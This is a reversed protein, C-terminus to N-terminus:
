MKFSSDKNLSYLIRNRTRKFNTFGNANSILKKLLRNKSEIYSNNIRKGNIITFSNIIEERWNLLLNHFEDLESIGSDAFLSIAKDIKYPAEAISCNSNLELYFERLEYAVKLEPFEALLLDRIGRYNIYEGLRKNYRPTNDLFTKHYFVFRFKVLFYKYNPNETAMRCKLRVNRFCRNLNEIVHFSDACIIAKPFYTKAISRFNESLDISVYRVNNLESKTTTYDLTDHKIRSFYNILYSKKRDPLIDVIEGTIFDMLLCCYLSDYDSEPFYHEDISLVEPLPKRPINVHKDFIRIVQTTSLNYRSAVSTYTAEPYKLDTLVNIKTEHTISERLSSFPNQEHLTIECNECKCRRQMYHISCKRNAFTSHTLKRTYYGHINLKKGCYPCTLLHRKLKVKLILSQDSQKLHYIEQIDDAKVNLLDTIFQELSMLRVEQQYILTPM